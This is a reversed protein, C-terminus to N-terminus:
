SPRVYDPMGNTQVIREGCAWFMEDPTDFLWFTFVFDEPGYAPGILTHYRELAGALVEELLPSAFQGSETVEEPSFGSVVTVIEGRQGWPYMATLGVVARPEFRSMIQHIETHVEADTM